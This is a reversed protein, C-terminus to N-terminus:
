GKGLCAIISVAVDRRTRDDCSCAQNSFGNAEDVCCCCFCVIYLLQTTVVWWGRAHRGEGGQRGQVGAVGAVVEVVHVVVTGEGRRRGGGSGGDSGLEGQGVREGVAVVAVWAAAVIAVDAVVAVVAVMAIAVVAVVTAVVAAVVAAVVEGIPARVVGVIVVPVVGGVAPADSSSTRVVPIRGGRVSVGAVVAFGGGLRVGRGVRGVSGVGRGVRAGFAAGGEAIGEALEEAVPAAVPAIGIGVDVIVVRAHLAQIAHRGRAAIVVTRAAHTPPAPHGIAAPNPPAPIAVIAVVVVIVLVHVVTKLGAHPAIEGRSGPIGMGIATHAIIVVVITIIIVISISAADGALANPGAATGVRATTAMADNAVVGMIHVLTVRAIIAAAVPVIIQPIGMHIHIHIHIGVVVVVDVVVVGWRAAVGAYDAAGGSLGLGLGLGLRPRSVIVFGHRFRADDGGIVVAVIAIGDGGGCGVVVVVVVIVVVAFVSQGELHCFFDSGHHMQQSEESFQIGVDVSATGSGGVATGVPRGEGSKSGFGIEVGLFGVHGQRGQDAFEFLFHFHDFMANLIM